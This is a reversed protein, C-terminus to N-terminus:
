GNQGDSMGEVRDLNSTEFLHQGLCSHLNFYAGKTPPTNRTSLGTFMGIAKLTKLVSSTQPLLVSKISFFPEREVFHWNDQKTLLFAGSVAGFLRGDRNM